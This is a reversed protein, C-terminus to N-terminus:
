RIIGDHLMQEVTENFACVVMDLVEYSHANGIFYTHLEAMYVRLRRMYYALAINARVDSGSYRERYYTVPRYRFSLSFMSRFGLVKCSIGHKEVVRGLASMLWNTKENLEEYINSHKKLFKLAAGGAACSLTNGSLTGGTFVKTEWDRFSDRTSKAMDIIDARGVVAGCPLGGGIIKGLVTLDPVVGVLSQMGGYAVRFGTVVEDFILPVKCETCVDRVDRLWKENYSLMSAPLPEMIVCALENAHQRIRDVSKPHGYQLVVTNNVVADATGASGAIPSPADLKGDVRFWSSVTGQDTFGHYHGECKAVKQKKRFAKCLAIAVHCSETGSNCFIGKEASPVADVILEMLEIEALNGIACVSGNSSADAIAENIASHSYGLIHPGYGGHLEIYRNGDVDELICGKAKKFFLPYNAPLFYRHLHTPAVLIEDAKKELQLSAPIVKDHYHDFIGRVKDSLYLTYRENFKRGLEWLNINPDLQTVFGEISILTLEIKTWDTSERADYQKLIGVVDRTFDATNWTNTIIEFHKKFCRAMDREYERWNNMLKDSPVVFCRTFREIALDWEKRTVAYYFSALYWKESETLREVIGFDILIIKGEETVMFNGPHPDAHFYGDMYMMSFIVEVLRYIIESSSVKLHPRKRESGCQVLHKGSIGSVFEMILVQSSCYEPYVRPINLFPHGLYNNRIGEMDKSEEIMDTQGILLKYFERFRDKLQFPRIAPFLAHVTWIVASLISLNARLNREIGWKVIKVAVKDGSQLEALHIQAISASAFPHNNFSRFVERGDFEASLIKKQHRRKMPPVEDQLKQLWSIIEPPLLESRTSLVQGMKIYASGMKVIFHYIVEGRLDNLRKASKGVSAALYWSMHYAINVILLVIWKIVNVVDM